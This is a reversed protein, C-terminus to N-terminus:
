IIILLLNETHFNLFFRKQRIQPVEQAVTFLGLIDFAQHIDLPM